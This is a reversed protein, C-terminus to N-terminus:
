YWYRLQVFVCLSMQGLLFHAQGILNPNQYYTSIVYIDTGADLMSLFAGVSVRFVMGFKNDRLLDNVITILFAELGDVETFLVSLQKSIGLSRLSRASRSTALPAM